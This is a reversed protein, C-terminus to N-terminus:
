RRWTLGFANMGSICISISSSSISGNRTPCDNRFIFATKSWFRFTFLPVNYNNKATSTTWKSDLKENSHRGVNGPFRRIARLKLHVTPFLEIVTHKILNEKSVHEAQLTVFLSTWQKKANWEGGGEGFISSEEVFAFSLFFSFSAPFDISLKPSPFLGFSVLFLSLGFYTWSVKM